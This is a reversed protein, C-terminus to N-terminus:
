IPPDQLHLPPDSGGGGGQPYDCGAGGGGGGGRGGRGGEGGQPCYCGALGGEQTLDPFSVMKVLVEWNSRAVSPLVLQVQRRVKGKRDISIRSENFLMGAIPVSHFYNVLSVPCPNFNFNFLFFCM